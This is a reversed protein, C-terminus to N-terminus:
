RAGFGTLMTKITKFFILVDLSFSFHKIYYFDFSIKVQTEDVGTAYGHMVQAWGSIGPKVIHRYQYFPIKKELEDAFDKFEARPGILSMEGKIVNFFQPIEDIRTKRIFHGIKTIRNDNQTTIHEKSKEKMSRLKYITIIKGRYGIRKQKYFISGGDEIKILIGVIFLIPITIPLSLIILIMELIYKISLYTVSPQLSGLHNEYMHHIKVQGTLMEEVNRIHLVPIGSLSQEALFKQWDHSLNPNHLDVVYGDIKEKILRPYEMRIWRAGPLSGALEAKAYPIYAFIPKKSVRIHFGLLCISFSVIFGLILYWLSFPLRLIGLTLWAFIFFLLSNIILVSYYYKIRPHKTLSFIVKASAFHTIAVTLMSITYAHGIYFDIKHFLIIYPIVASIFTGIWVRFNFSQLINM